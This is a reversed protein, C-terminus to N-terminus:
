LIRIGFNFEGDGEPWTASIQLTYEGPPADLSASGGSLELRVVPELRPYGESRDVTGLVGEVHEADGNVRLMAGRPVEVYGKPIIVDPVADACWGVAQGGEEDRRWCYSGHVGEQRETGAVLTGVPGHDTASLGVAVDAAADRSRVREEASSRACSVAVAFLLVAALARRM